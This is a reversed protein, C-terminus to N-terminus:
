GGKKASGEGMPLFAGDQIQTHTHTPPVTRKAESTVTEVVGLVRKERTRGVGVEGEKQKEKGRARWRKRHTFCFPFVAHVHRHTCIYTHM